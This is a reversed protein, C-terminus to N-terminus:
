HKSEFFDYIIEKANELKYQSHYIYYFHYEGGVQCVEVLAGTKHALYFLMDFNNTLIPYKYM